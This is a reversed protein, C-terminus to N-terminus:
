ATSGELTELPELDVEHSVSAWTSTSASERIASEIGVSRALDALTPLGDPTGGHAASHADAIFSAWCDRHGQPHGAPQTSYRSVDSGVGRQFRQTSRLGMVDLVEPRGEHFVISEEVGDLVVLLTGGEVPRTHSVALSGVAGRDTEFHLALAGSADHPDHATDLWGSGVSSASLRDIRHGSTFEVLDCWAAVSRPAAWGHLLHLPGPEGSRVRRRALRVMPYYRYVFPVAVVVGSEAATTALGGIDAADLQTPRVHLVVTRAGKRLTDAVDVTPTTVHLVDAHRQDDVIEASAEQVLARAQASVPGVFGV